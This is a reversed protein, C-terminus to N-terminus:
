CSSDAPCPRRIVVVECGGETLRAFALAGRRLLGGLFPVRMMRAVTRVWARAFRAGNCKDLLQEGHLDVCEYGKGLGRCLKRLRANTTYTLQGLLVPDRGRLRLYLRGLSKPLLPLWLIKYHPEHFRLYNPCAIYVAGGEKVVRVAERLVVVQDSVHEMVQNMTVLDFSGDAFPLNEGVAVAFVQEEVRRSAIQIATLSSGQGIRDPEVGFARLGRRRCGAVFSGVGSGVDLIRANVPIPCVRAVHSLITQGDERLLDDTIKEHWEPCQIGSWNQKRYELLLTRIESESAPRPTSVSIVSM